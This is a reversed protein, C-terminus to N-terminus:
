SYVGFYKKNHHLQETEYIRIKKNHHLQETEYIRIKKNLTYLLAAQLIQPLWTKNTINLLNMGGGDSWDIGVVQLCYVNFLLTTSGCVTSM